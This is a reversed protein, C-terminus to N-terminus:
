VTAAASLTYVYKAIMEIEMPIANFINYIVFYNLVIRTTHTSHQQQGAPRSATENTQIKRAATRKKKEWKTHVYICCRPSSLFCVILPVPHRRM